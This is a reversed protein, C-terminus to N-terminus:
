KSPRFTSKPQYIAWPGVFDSPNTAGTSKLESLVKQFCFKLSPPFSPPEHEFYEILKLSQLVVSLAILCSEGFKPLIHGWPEYKKQTQADGIVNIMGGLIVLEIYEKGGYFCISRM